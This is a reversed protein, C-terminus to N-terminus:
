IYLKATSYIPGGSVKCVGRNACSEVATDENKVAYFLHTTVCLCIYIYVYTYIYM